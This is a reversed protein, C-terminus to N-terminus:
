WKLGGFGLRLALPGIGLAFLKLVPLLCALTVIEM